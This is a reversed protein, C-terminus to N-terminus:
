DFDYERGKHKIKPRKKKDPIVRTIPKIEGWDRRMKSVVDYTSTGNKKKKSM